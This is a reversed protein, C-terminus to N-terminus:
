ARAEGLLLPWGPDIGDARMLALADELTRETGEMYPRVLAMARQYAALAMEAEALERELRERGLDPEQGIWLASM